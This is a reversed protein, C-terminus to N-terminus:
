SGGNANNTSPEHFNETDMHNDKSPDDDLDDAEDDEDDDKKDHDEPPNDNKQELKDCEVVFSLGYLKQKLDFLREAPIKSPDRCALKVRVVEYFSKFITPWDVDLMIGFGSTIQALVKWDCWRPPIGKIQVWVEQLEGM